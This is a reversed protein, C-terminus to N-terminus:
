CVRTTEIHMKNWFLCNRNVPGLNTWLFCILELEGGMACWFSNFHVTGDYYMLLSIMFPFGWSFIHLALTFLHNVVEQPYQWVIVLYLQLALCFLWCVCSLPFYILAVGQINCLTKNYQLDNYGSLPGFLFIIAEITASVSFFLSSRGTLDDKWALHTLVTLFVL